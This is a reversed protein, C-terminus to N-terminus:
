QCQEGSTLPTMYDKLITLMKGGLPKKYKPNHLSYIKFLYMFLYVTNCRIYGFPLNSHINEEPSPFTSALRSHGGGQSM